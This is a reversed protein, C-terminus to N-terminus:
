DRVVIRCFGILPSEAVVLDTGRNWLSKRQVEDGGCRQLCLTLM